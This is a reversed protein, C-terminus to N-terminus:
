LTEWPFSLYMQHCVKEGYLEGCDYDTTDRMFAAVTELQQVQLMRLATRGTDIIDDVVFMTEIPRYTILFCPKLYALLQAIVLGSRPMPYIQIVGAPYAASLKEALVKTARIVEEWTVTIKDQM